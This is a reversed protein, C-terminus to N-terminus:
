LRNGTYGCSVVAGAATCLHRDDRVLALETAVMGLHGLLVALCTNLRLIHFQEWLYRSVCPCNSYTVTPQLVAM